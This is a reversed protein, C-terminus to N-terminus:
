VKCTMHDCAEYKHIPVECGPCKTSSRAVEAVSMENQEERKQDDRRRDEEERHRREDYRACTEGVHFPVDHITCVRFNCANCRFINGDSDPDHIQGSSCGEALCYRFNQDASLFARM